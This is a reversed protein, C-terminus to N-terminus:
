DNGVRDGFCIRWYMALKDADECLAGWLSEDLNVTQVVDPDCHDFPLWALSVTHMEGYPRRRYKKSVAAHFDEWCTVLAVPESDWFFIGMAKEIDRALDSSVRSARDHPETRNVVVASSHNM